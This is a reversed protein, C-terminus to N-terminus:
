EWGLATDRGWPSFWPPPLRFCCPMGPTGKGIPSGPPAASRSRQGRMSRNPNDTPGSRGRVVAAYSSRLMSLAAPEAHEPESAAAVPRVSKVAVRNGVARQSVAYGSTGSREERKGEYLLEWVNCGPGVADQALGWGTTGFQALRGQAYHTRRRATPNLPQGRASTIWTRRWGAVTMERQMAQGQSCHTGPRIAYALAPQAAWSRSCRTATARRSRCQIIRAPLPATELAASSTAPISTLRRSGRWDGAGNSGHADPRCRASRRRCRRRGCGRDRRPPPVCRCRDDNSERVYRVLQLVWHVPPLVGHGDGVRAARYCGSRSLPGGSVISYAGFLPATRGDAPLRGQEEYKGVQRDGGLRSFPGCGSVRM